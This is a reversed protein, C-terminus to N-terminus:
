RGLVDRPDIGLARCIRVYVRLAIGSDTGNEARMVTTRDLRAKRAIDDLKAGAEHRRARLRAGIEMALDEAARDASPHDKVAPLTGPPASIELEPSSAANRTPYIGSM